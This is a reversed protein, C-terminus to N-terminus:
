KHADFQEVTAIFTGILEAQRRPFNRKPKKLRPMTARSQGSEYGEKFGAEFGQRHSGAEAADIQAQRLIERAQERSKRLVVKAESLHDAVNVTELRTIVRPNQDNLKIVTSKVTDM